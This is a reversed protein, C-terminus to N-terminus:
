ASAVFKGGNTSTSARLMPFEFAGGEFGPGDSAKFAGGKGLEAEEFHFVLSGLGARRFAWVITLPWYGIQGGGADYTTHARIGVGEVGNIIGFKFVPKRAGHSIFVVKGSGVNQAASDAPDFEPDKAGTITLKRLGGTTHATITILGDKESYGAAMAFLFGLLAGLGHLISHPDAISM